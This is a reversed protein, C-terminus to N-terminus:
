ASWSNLSELVHDSPMRGEAVDVIQQMKEKIGEPVSLRGICGRVLDFDWILRSAFGKLAQVFAEVNQKVSGAQGRSAVASLSAFMLLLAWGPSNASVAPRVAELGEKSALAAETTRGACLLWQVHVIHNLVYGRGLRVAESASDVAHDVDGLRGLAEAMGVRLLARLGSPGRRQLGQKYQEVAKEYEGQRFMVRGRTLYIKVDEPNWREAVALDSLAGEYEGLEALARARLVWLAYDRPNLEIGEASVRVAEEILRSDLLRESLETRAPSHHPFEKLCQRLLEIAELRRDSYWLANAKSTLLWSRNPFEPRKELAELWKLADSPRRIQFSISVLEGLVETNEPSLSHARELKQYAESLRDLQRLGRASTVLGDINEPELELARQTERVAAEAGGPGPQSLYFQARLIYDVAKPQVGLRNLAESYRSLSAEVRKRAEEAILSPATELLEQRQLLVRDQFQQQMTELQARLGEVVSLKLADVEVELGERTLQIERKVEESVRRIHEGLERKAMEIERSFRDREDRALDRLERAERRERLAFPIAVAAVVGLMVGFFIFLNNRLDRMDAALDQARTELSVIRAVVEITTQTGSPPAQGPSPTGKAVPSPANSPVTAYASIGLGFLLVLTALLRVFYNRAAEHLTRNRM